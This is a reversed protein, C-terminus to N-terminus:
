QKEVFRLRDARTALLPGVRRTSPQRRVALDSMLAGSWLRTLSYIHQPMRRVNALQFSALRTSKMLRELPNEDPRCRLDVDASVAQTAVTVCASKAPKVTSRVAASNHTRPQYIHRQQDIHQQQWRFDSHKAHARCPPTIYVIVEQVRFM